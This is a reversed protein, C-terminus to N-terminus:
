TQSIIICIDFYVTASEHLTVGVGFRLRRMSCIAGMYLRKYRQGAACADFFISAGRVRRRYKHMYTFICSAQKITCHFRDLASCM